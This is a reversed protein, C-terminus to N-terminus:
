NGILATKLEEKLEISRMKGMPKVNVVGMHELKAVIRHAKLRTMNPLRAIEAQYIRGSRNLLENVVMKDDKGLFKLLIDKVAKAEMGKKEVRDSMLYYVSAGVIVGFTGMLAMLEVHHNILAEFLPDFISGKPPLQYTFVMVFTLFILASILALSLAIRKDSVM